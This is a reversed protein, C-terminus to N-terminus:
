ANAFLYHMKNELKINKQMEWDNGHKTKGNSIKFPLLNKFLPFYKENNMVQIHLHPQISSGSNGAEAILQGSKVADGKKVNVSGKKLHCLLVYFDDAKIMIHNGGFNGFGESEKPKNILLSFLDYIFSIKMRDNEVDQSEIVIGDIPSFIPSSWTYTDNVSIFSVLHKLFSGKSYLSGKEDEALFDFALAPHGPPNYIVWNGKVPSDIIIEQKHM